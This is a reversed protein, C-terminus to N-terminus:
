HVISLSCHIITSSPQRNTQRFPPPFNGYGETVSRLRYKVPLYGTSLRYKVPVFGETVPITKAPHLPQSFHIKFPSYHFRSLTALPCKGTRPALQAMKDSRMISNKEGQDVKIWRSGGQNVKIWSSKSSAAQNPRPRTIVINGLDCSLSLPPTDTRARLLSPCARRSWTKWSENACERQQARPRACEPKTTFGAKEGTVGPFADAGGFNARAGTKPGLKDM